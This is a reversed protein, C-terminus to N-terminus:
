CSSCTSHVWSQLLSFIEHLNLSANGSCFATSSFSFYDQGNLFKPPCSSCGCFKVLTLEYFTNMLEELQVNYTSLGRSQLVLCMPVALELGTQRLNGFMQANFVSLMIFFYLTKMKLNQLHRSKILKNTRVINSSTSSNRENM